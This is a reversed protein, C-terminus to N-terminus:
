LDLGDRRIERMFPTRKRWAGAPFPKASIVAGTDYLIDTEIESLPGMEEWFRAPNQLFLAIDYDSDPRAEGRARSGYLVMREVRDGYIQNVADRFRRLVPDTTPPDIPTPKTRMHTAGMAHNLPNTPTVYSLLTLALADMGGGNALRSLGRRFGNKPGIAHFEEVLAHAHRGGIRLPKGYALANVEIRRSAASVRVRLDVDVAEPRALRDGVLVTVKFNARYVTSTSSLPKRARPVRPNSIRQKNAVDEFGAECASRSTNFMGTRPKSFGRDM